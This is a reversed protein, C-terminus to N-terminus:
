STELRQLNKFTHQLSMEVTRFMNLELTYVKPSLFSLTKENAIADRIIASQVQDRSMGDELEVDLIVSEDLIDLPGTPFVCWRGDNSISIEIPKPNGEEDKSPLTQFLMRQKTIILGYDGNVYGLLFPRCEKLIYSIHTYANNIVQKQQRLIQEKNLRIM